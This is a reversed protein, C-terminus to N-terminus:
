SVTILKILRPLDNFGGMENLTIVINSRRPSNFELDQQTQKTEDEILVEEESLDFDHSISRSEQLWNLKAQKNIVTEFKADGVLSRRNSPYGHQHIFVCFLTLKTRLIM